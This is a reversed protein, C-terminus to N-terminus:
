IMLAGHRYLHGDRIEDTSFFGIPCKNCKVETGTIRVFFHECLVPESLEHKNINADKWYKDTSPPLSDLVAKM